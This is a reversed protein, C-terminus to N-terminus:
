LINASGSLFIEERITVFKKKRALRLMKIELKSAQVKPLQSM